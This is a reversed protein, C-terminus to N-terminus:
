YWNFLCNSETHLTKSFKEGGLLFLNRLTANSLPLNAHGVKTRRLGRAWSWGNLRLIQRTFEPEHNILNLRTIPSKFSCVRLRQLWCRQKSAARMNQEKRKQYNSRYVSCAADRPPRSIGGSNYAHFCLACDSDSPPSSALTVHLIQNFNSQLELILHPIPPWM